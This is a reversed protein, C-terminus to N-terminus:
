DGGRVGGWFTVTELATLVPKVADQHGVFHLRERHSAPDRTIAAGDWELRGSFPPLLGAMVRLLSSKGSGNPGTLLLADGAALAFGLGAFVRREGRRCALDRGAFRTMISILSASTPRRSRPLPVRLRRM